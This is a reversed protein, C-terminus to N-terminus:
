RGAGPAPRAGIFGFPNKAFALTEGLFPLGGSGPPRKKGSAANSM